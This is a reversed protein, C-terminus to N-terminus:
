MILSVNNFSGVNIQRKLDVNKSSCFHSCAYVQHKVAYHYSTAM